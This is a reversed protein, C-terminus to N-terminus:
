RRRCCTASWGYRGPHARRPAPPPSPRRRSPSGTPAQRWRASRSVHVPEDEERQQLVADGGARDVQQQRDPQQDHERDRPHDENRLAIQQREARQRHGRQLRAVHGARKPQQVAEGGPAPRMATRPHRAASRPTSAQADIRQDHRRAASSRAGRLHRRDRDQQRQRDDRRHARQDPPEGEPRDGVGRHERQQDQRHCQMEHQDPQAQHEEARLFGARRRQGVGAEVEAVQGHGALREHTSSHQATSTAPGASTRRRWADVALRQAGGRGVPQARPQDPMSAPAVPASAKPRADNM